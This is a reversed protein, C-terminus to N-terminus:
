TYSIEVHSGLFYLLGFEGGGERGETIKCCLQGVKEYLSIKFKLTRVGFSVFGWSIRM